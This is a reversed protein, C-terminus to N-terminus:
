SGTFPSGACASFRSLSKSPSICCEAPLAAEIIAPLMGFSVGHRVEPGLKREFRSKQDGTFPDALSLANVNQRRVVAPADTGRPQSILFIELYGNGCGGFGKGLHSLESSM